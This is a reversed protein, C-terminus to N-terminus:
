QSLAMLNTDVFASICRVKFLGTAANLELCVDVVYKHFPSHQIRDFLDGVVVDANVHSVLIARRNALQMM